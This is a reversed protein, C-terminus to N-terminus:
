PRYAAAPSRFPLPYSQTQQYILFAIIGIIFMGGIVCGIIIGALAGKSLGIESGGGTGTGTTTVSTIGLSSLASTGSNTAAIFDNAFDKSSGDNRNQFEFTITNGFTTVVFCNSAVLPPQYGKFSNMASVILPCFLVPNPLNSGSITVTEGSSGPFTGTTTDITPCTTVSQFNSNPLQNFFNGASCSGGQTICQFFSSVIDFCGSCNLGGYGSSVAAFCAPCSTYVACPDTSQRVVARQIPQIAKSCKSNDLSPKKPCFDSDIATCFGEECWGCGKVKLCGECDDLIFACQAEIDTEFSSVTFFILVSLLSLVIYNKM